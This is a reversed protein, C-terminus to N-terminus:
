PVADPNRSLFTRGIVRGANAAQSWVSAWSSASQISNLLRLLRARQAEPMVEIIKAWLADINYPAAAIDVRVPVVEGSNFGLDAAAAEVAGRISQSKARSTDALDYPPSWDDFPRLRDIHTLVLLMAPRRRNSQAAFHSRLAALAQRDIERAAQNAASVWVVMDASAVNAILEGIGKPSGLGPSDIVLVAPVGERSIRYAAYTSTAPLADVAAGVEGALANVLSSKGAAGQGAVLIRLPEAEREALAALDRQTEPSVHHALDEGTVRLNGGYLDIAARGVQLVFERALRKALQERGMAYIQRTFRERLEQTAASIPNLLRVIRWLDYGKEAWNLASRWRYLWMVQAVTVRDGLPFSEVVFRHLGKSTREIVALAEPVTFQLLPDRREPHIRRAVVEITELGLALAADRSSLREPKAQSALRQVDEWATTQLPTWAAEPPEPEGAAKVGAPPTPLILRRQLVYAATVIVCTAIAWHVLYGQQWLWLSGLPILTAVPLALAVALLLLRIHSTASRVEKV